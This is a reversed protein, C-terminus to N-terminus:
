AYLRTRLPKARLGISACDIPTCDITHSTRPPVPCWARTLAVVGDRIRAELNAPANWAEDFGTSEGAIGYGTDAIIGLGTLEHIQRWTTPNNPRIHESSASTRGGSTHMYSLNASRLFPLLYSRQDQVWPSIDMSFEALPLHARVRGVMRTMLDVMSALPLGGGEQTASPAAYQHFDPEILWIVRLSRGRIRASARAFAEYADLITEQNERIYSAGRSCLTLPPSGVDCDLLGAHQRALFAILYAYFLPIAGLKASTRLAAGHWEDNFAVSGGDSQGLWVSVHDVHGYHHHPGVFATGFAFQCGTSHSPESEPPIYVASTPPPADMLMVAPPTGHSLSPANRSTSTGASSACQWPPSSRLPCAELCQSYFESEAFCHLMEAHHGLPTAAQCCRPGSWGTGGCQQYNASCSPM